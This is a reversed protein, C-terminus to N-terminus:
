EDGTEEEVCDPCLGKDGEEILYTQGCVCTNVKEIPYYEDETDVYAYQERLM